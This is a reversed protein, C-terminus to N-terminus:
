VERMTYLLHELLLPPRQNYIEMQQCCDNLLRNWVVLKKLERPKKSVGEGSKRLRTNLRIIVEEILAVAFEKRDAADTVEAVIEATEEQSVSEAFLYGAIKSALNKLLVPDINNWAQFYDKLTTYEDSKERFIKQLVAGSSKEDRPIFDYPRVRSLVTPLLSSKGATILIFYVNEPPEELTKLLANKSGALMHDANELVVVKNLGEVSTHVWFAAKRVQDIPISSNEFVGSIKRCTEFIGSVVSELKNDDDINMGPSVEELLEEVRRVLQITKGSKKGEGSFDADFRRTLKRVSRVFMYQAFPERNRKLVDGCASIEQMFYRNGLMVTAPHILLRQKECSKCSCGWVAEGQECTLIRALELATTLKGSFPEGYFLLSSPLTNNKIDLRLRQIVADQYLINEFV